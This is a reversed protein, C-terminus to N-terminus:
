FLQRPTQDIDTKSNLNKNLMLGVKEDILPKFKVKCDCFGSMATMPAKFCFPLQDSM